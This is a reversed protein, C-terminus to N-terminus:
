KLTIPLLELALTPYILFDIYKSCLALGTVISVNKEVKFEEFM